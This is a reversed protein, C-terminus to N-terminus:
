FSKKENEDNKRYLYMCTGVISYKSYESANLIIDESNINLSRLIFKNGERNYQRIFINNDKHFVANEGINPHRKELFIIDDKYYTHALSDNPLKFAMFANKLHTKIRTKISTDYLVGDKFVGTPELCPIDITEESLEIEKPLYLDIENICKQENEFKSYNSEFTSMSMVFRKGHSSCQRYNKLLQLEDKAYNSRGTLLDISIDLADCIAYLTEIKPNGTREDIINKITEVSVGSKKSLETRTINLLSLNKDLNEAIINKM